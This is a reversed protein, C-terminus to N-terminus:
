RSGVGLRTVFWQPAPSGAGPAFTVTETEDGVQAVFATASQQTLPVTGWQATTATLNTGDTAVVVSGLGYPDFYTGALPAWTSPPTTWVPGPVDTLGLFTSVAFAAADETSCGSAPNDGDFFVVVAFQSAPVMWFSSRFGHLSGSTRLIHLGKYGDHAYLGYTYQDGPYLQDAAQGTELSQVSAPELMTGGGAYLTAALQAYDDVTAYVGDAARFAACDYEGPTYTAGQPLDHGLAYDGATVVAPDYTAGAMGAPGFVRQGVVDEFRTSSAAEIAWGAAVYGRQSYDWVAGAPAWLPQPPQSTFWQALEGQGVACSMHDTDADPLGSTHTLLNAVTITSPDFGPALTIPAYRTVPSSLDLQGRESLALATAGVVVKSLGATQFRTTASVPVGTGPDEVGFGVSETLQGNEVIAIAGGPISCQQMQGAISDLVSQLRSDAVQPMEPAAVKASCAGLIPLASTTLLM